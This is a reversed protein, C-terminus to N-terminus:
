AKGVLSDLPFRGVRARRHERALQEALAEADALKAYLEDCREAAARAFEQLRTLAAERGDESAERDHLVDRADLLQRMEQLTFGLPKMQKVLRLRDVHEDAYLRFGADSRKAPPLLGTEEYYRVTRLSLGLREAVEGIQYLSRSM